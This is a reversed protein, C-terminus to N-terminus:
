LAMQEVYLPMDDIRVVYHSSSRQQIHWQGCVKSLAHPCRCSCNSCVLPAPADSPLAIVLTPSYETVKGRGLPVGGVTAIKYFGSRLQQTTFTPSSAEDDSRDSIDELM